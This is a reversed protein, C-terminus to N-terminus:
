GGIKEDIEEWGRALLEAKLMKKKKEDREREM